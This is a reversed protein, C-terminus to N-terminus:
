QLQNNSARNFLQMENHMGFKVSSKSLIRWSMSMADIIGCSELVIIICISANDERGSGHPM